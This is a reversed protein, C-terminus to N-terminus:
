SDSPMSGTLGTEAAAALQGRGWRESPTDAPAGWAQATSMLRETSNVEPPLMASQRMVRRRDTRRAAPRIRAAVAAAATAATPRAVVAAAWSVYVSTVLLECRECLALM